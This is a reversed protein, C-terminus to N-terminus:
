QNMIGYKIYDYPLVIDITNGSLLGFVLESFVLCVEVVSTREVRNALFKPGNRSDRDTRTRGPRDKTSRPRDQDSRISQKSSIVTYTM